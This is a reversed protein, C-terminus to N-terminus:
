RNRVTKDRLRDWRSALRTTWKYIPGGLRLFFTHPHSLIVNQAARIQAALRDQQDDTLRNRVHHNLLQSRDAHEDFRRDLQDLLDAMDPSNLKRRDIRVLLREM